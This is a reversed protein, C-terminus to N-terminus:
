DKSENIVVKDYDTLGQSVVEGIVVNDNTLLLVKDNNEITKVFEDNTVYFEKTKIEYGLEKFYGTIKQLVEDSKTIGIYVYYKNKDLQYIYNELNITNKEMEGYDDYVGYEIFYLMSGEKYVTIGRYNDYKRLVLNSLLFGVVLSIIITLLYKKM